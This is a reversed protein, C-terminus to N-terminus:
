ETMFKIQESKIIENSKQVVGETIKNVLESTLNQGRVDIVIQQQKGQPSVTM